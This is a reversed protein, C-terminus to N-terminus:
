IRYDIIESNLVISSKTPLVGNTLSFRIGPSVVLVMRALSSPFLGAPDTLSRGAIEM